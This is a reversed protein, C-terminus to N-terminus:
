PCLAARYALSAGAAVMQEIARDGDGPQADVAAIDVLHPYRTAQSYIVL